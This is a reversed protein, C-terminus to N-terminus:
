NGSLVVGYIKLYPFEQKLVKANEYITTGTSIVDDVIWVIEAKSIIKIENIELPNKLKIKDNLNILRQIKTTSSQQYTTSLKNIIKLNTTSVDEDELKLVLKQALIKPIDFGRQNLRKKDPAVSIIIDPNPLFYTTDLWIREFFLDSLENVVGWELDLKIREILDKTYVDYKFAVYIMEFVKQNKDDLHRLFDKSSFLFEREVYKEFSKSLKSYKPFVITFFLELQKQLYFM